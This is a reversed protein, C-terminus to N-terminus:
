HWLLATSVIKWSALLSIWTDTSILHADDEQESDVSFSTVGQIISDLRGQKATEFSQFEM